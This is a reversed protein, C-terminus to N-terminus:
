TSSRNPSQQVEKESRTANLIKFKIHIYHAMKQANHIKQTGHAREAVTTHPHRPSIIFPQLAVNYNNLCLSM